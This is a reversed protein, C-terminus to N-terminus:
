RKYQGPCYSEMRTPGPFKPWHLGGNHKCKDKIGWNNDCNETLYIKKCKIM